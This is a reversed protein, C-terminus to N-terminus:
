ACLRSSIVQEELLYRGSGCQPLGCYMPQQVSIVREGWEVYGGTTFFAVSTSLIDCQMEPFWATVFRSGVREM